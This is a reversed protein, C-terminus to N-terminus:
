RHMFVPTSSTWNIDTEFGELLIDSEEIIENADNEVSETQTGTIM